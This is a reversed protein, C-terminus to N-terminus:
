NSAWAFPSLLDYNIPTEGGRLVRLTLSLVLPHADYVNTAYAEITGFQNKRSATFNESFSDVVSSFIMWPDDEKLERAQLLLPIDEWDTIRLLERLSFHLVDQEDARIYILSRLCFIAISLWRRPHQRFDAESIDFLPLTAELEAKFHAYSDPRRYHQLVKQLAGDPDEYIVGDELLHRVFLSGYGGMVKLQRPSYTSVNYIGHRTTRARGAKLILIDLDSHHDM